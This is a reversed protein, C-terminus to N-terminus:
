GLDLRNAALELGIEDTTPEVLDLHQVVVERLGDGGGTELLRRLSPFNGVHAPPALIQHDLERVALGHDDVEPHGPIEDEDIGLAVRPGPIGPYVTLIVAGPVELGSECEVVPSFESERVGATEPSSEDSTRVLDIDVKRLPESRLGKRGFESRLGEGSGTLAPRRWELGEKEVLPPHGANSVDVGVLGQVPGSKM